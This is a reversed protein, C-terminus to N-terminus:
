AYEYRYFKGDKGSITVAECNPGDLLDAVLPAYDRSVLLESEISGDKKLTILLKM